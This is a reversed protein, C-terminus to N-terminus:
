TNFYQYKRFFSLFQFITKDFYQYKQFIASTWFYNEEKKDNNNYDM